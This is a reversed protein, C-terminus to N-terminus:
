NQYIKIRFFGLFSTKNNRIDKIRAKMKCSNKTNYLKIDKFHNKWVIKWAKKIYHSIM